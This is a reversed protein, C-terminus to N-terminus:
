RFLLRSEAIGLKDLSHYRVGYVLEFSLLLPLRSEFGRGERQCRSARGVSSSGCTAVHYVHKGQQNQASPTLRVRMQHEESM